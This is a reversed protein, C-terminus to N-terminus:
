QDIKTSWEKGLTVVVDVSSNPDYQLEYNGPSLEFLEALFNV